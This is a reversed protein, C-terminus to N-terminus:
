TSPPGAKMIVISVVAIFTAISAWFPWPSWTYIPYPNADSVYVRADSAESAEINARQERPWRAGSPTSYTPFELVPEFFRELILNEKWTHLGQGENRRQIHWLGEALYHDEISLRHLIAPPERRWRISRDRAAETLEDATFRSLFRGADAADIEHGLHVAHFFAAITVTALAVFAVLGRRAPRDLTM